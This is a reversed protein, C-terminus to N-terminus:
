QIVSTILLILGSNLNEALVSKDKEWIKAM